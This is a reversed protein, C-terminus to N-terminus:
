NANTQGTNIDILSRTRLTRAEGLVQLPTKGTAKAVRHEILYFIYEDYLLRILHFSGFSSASRLTLDRMVLSSYFGWKFFFQTASRVDDDTLCLDLIQECWVGWKDFPNSEQLLAKFSQEIQEVLEDDCQCVWSAQEQVNKFDVRNLDNIMQQIQQQNQLVARAASSLHNLSTYRRLTHSFAGVAAVKASVFEEDYGVLANTMWQNINKAFNRIQQTLNQPIPRLLNPLLLSSILANYMKYDTEIIWDTLRGMSEDDATMSILSQIQTITMGDDKNDSNDPKQWFQQWIIEISNFQLTGLANIIDDYHLRYISTFKIRENENLGDSIEPWVDKLLSTADGLYAILVEPSAAAVASQHSDSTNNTITKSGIANSNTKARKAPPTSESGVVTSGIDNLRALPSGPKVRIGYYHYKSNGRTGLRRTRLGIFVSRILKGFSAANVPEINHQQCHQQYHSYLTSRPLSVGEATEYNEILWQVTQPSTRQAGSVGTLTSDTQEMVLYTGDTLIQNVGSSNYYATATTYSDTTYYTMQPGSNSGNTYTSFDDFGSQGDDEDASATAAGSAVTASDSQQGGSAQGTSEPSVAVAIFQGGSSVQVVVPQGAILNNAHATTNHTPAVVTIVQATTAQVSAASTNFDSKMTALSNIAASATGSVALATTHDASSKNTTITSTTTTNNPTSNQQM